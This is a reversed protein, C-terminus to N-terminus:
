RRPREATVHDGLGHGDLKPSPPRHTSFPREEDLAALQIALIDPRVLRRAREGELEEGDLDALSAPLVRRLSPRSQVALPLVPREPM